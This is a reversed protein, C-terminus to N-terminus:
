NSLSHSSVEGKKPPYANMFIGIHIPLSPFLPVLEFDDKKALRFGVRQPRELTDTGSRGGGGFSGIRCLDLLM